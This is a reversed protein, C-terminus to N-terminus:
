NWSVALDYHQAACHDVVIMTGFSSQIITGIPINFAAAIAINGSRDRYVGDSSPSVPIGGQIGNAAFDAESRGSFSPNYYTLRVGDISTSGANYLFNLQGIGQLIPTQIEQSIPSNEISSLMKQTKLIRAQSALENKVELNSFYANSAAKGVKLTEAQVPNGLAVLLIFALIAFVYKQNRRVRLSRKKFNIPIAKTRFDIPQKTALIQVKRM